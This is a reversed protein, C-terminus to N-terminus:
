SFFSSFFCYRPKLDAIFPVRDSITQFDDISLPVGLTRAIALIHLVVNTSGGLAMTIVMANELAERTMIDSPKIDKELLLKIAEGAKLCELHKLSDEAPTSSSYPLCM